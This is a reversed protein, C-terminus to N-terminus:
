GDILCHVKRLLEAASFPKALVPIPGITANAHCARSDGTVLLWRGVLGRRSLALVLEPGSMGPMEVDTIVLDIQTAAAVNMAEDANQAALVEFGEQAVVCRM